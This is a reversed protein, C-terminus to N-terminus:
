NLRELVTLCQSLKKVWQVGKRKMMMDDAFVWGVEISRVAELVWGVDLLRVELVFVRETLVVVGDVEGEGGEEVEVGEEM